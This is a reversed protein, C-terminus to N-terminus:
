FRLRTRNGPTLKGGGGAGGRRSVYVKGQVIIYCDTKTNHKAVEAATFKTSM